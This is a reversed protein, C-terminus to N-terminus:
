HLFGLGGQVSRLVQVRIGAHSQVDGLRVGDEVAGWNRFGKWEIRQFGIFDNVFDGIDECEEKLAGKM